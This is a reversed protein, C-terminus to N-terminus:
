DTEALASQAAALHEPHRTFLFNNGWRAAITADHGVQHLLPELEPSQHHAPDYAAAPVLGGDFVLHATFGLGTLRDMLETPAGPRHREESEILAADVRAMVADGAGDIVDLEAGEVDIKLLIRGPPLDQDALRRCAVPVQRQGSGTGTITPRNVISGLTAVHRGDPTVPVTLTAADDAAASLAVQHVTVEPFARRLLRASRPNPEFAVRHAIDSGDLMALYLGDAGGVDVFADVHPALARVIALEREVGRAAEHARRVLTERHRKPWAWKVAHGILQRHGDQM